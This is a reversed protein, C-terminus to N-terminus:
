YWTQKGNVLRFTTSSGVNPPFHPYCFPFYSSLASFKFHSNAPPTQKTFNFQFGSTEMGMPKDSSQFQGNRDSQNTEENM